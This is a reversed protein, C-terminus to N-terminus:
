TIAVFFFLSMATDVSLANEGDQSKKKKKTYLKQPSSFLM